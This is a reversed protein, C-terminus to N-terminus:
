TSWYDIAFEFPDLITEDILDIDNHILGSSGIEDKMENNLKYSYKLKDIIKQNYEKCNCESNYINFGDVENYKVNNEKVLYDGIDSKLIENNSNDIINMKKIGLIELDENINILLNDGIRSLIDIRKENNSLSSYIEANEYEIETFKVVKSGYLLILIDLITYIGGKMITNNSICTSADDEFNNNNNNIIIIEINGFEKLLIILINFIKKYIFFDDFDNEKNHIEESEKTDDKINLKSILRLYEIEGNQVCLKKIDRLKFISYNTLEYLLIRVFAKSIYNISTKFQFSDKLKEKFYLIIDLIENQINLIRKYKNKNTDLPDKLFKGFMFLGYLISVFNNNDNSNSLNIISGLIISIIDLNLDMVYNDANNKNKISVMSYFSKMIKGILNWIYEYIEITSVRSHFLLHILMNLFKVGIINDYKKSFIYWSYKINNLNNYANHINHISQNNDQNVNINTNTNLTDSSKQYKMLSIISDNNKLYPHINGYFSLENNIFSYNYINFINNNNLQCDVLYEENQSYLKNDNLIYLLTDYGLLYKWFLIKIQKQNNDFNRNINQINFILDDISILTIQIMNMLIKLLPSVKDDSLNYIKNEETILKNIIRNLRNILYLLLLYDMEICKVSKENQNVLFESNQLKFYYDLYIGNVRRIGNIRSCYYFLKYKKIWDQSDNNNFSDETDQEKLSMIINSIIDKKIYQNWVLMLDERESIFWNLFIEPIDNFIINDFIKPLEENIYINYYEISQCLQKINNEIDNDKYCEVIFRKIKNNSSNDTNNKKHDAIKYKEQEKLGINSRLPYLIFTLLDYYKKNILIISKLIYILSLVMEKCEIIYNDDIFNQKINKNNLYILRDYWFLVIIIFIVLDKGIDQIHNNTEIINKSSNENILIKLIKNIINIMKYNINGNNYENNLDEIFLNQVSIIWRYFFYKTLNIININISKQENILINILIDYIYYSIDLKPNLLINSVRPKDIINVFDNLEPM